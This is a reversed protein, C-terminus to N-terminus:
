HEALRACLFTSSQSQLAHCSHVWNLRIGLQWGTDVIMMKKHDKRVEVEDLDQMPESVRQKVGEVRHVRIICLGLKVFLDETQLSPYVFKEHIDEELESAHM